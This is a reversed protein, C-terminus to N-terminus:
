GGPGIWGNGGNNWTTTWSGTQYKLVAASLNSSGDGIALLECPGSADVNAGLYTDKPFPSLYWDGIYNNQNNNWLLDWNTGNYKLLMARSGLLNKSICLLEDKVGDGDFDGAVYTDNASMLWGGIYGNDSNWWLTSWTASLDDYKLLRSSRYPLFRNKGTALVEEGSSADDFNGITYKDSDNMSWAGIANSSANDWDINWYPTGSIAYTHESFVAAHGSVFNPKNICILKSYNGSKRPLYIDTASIPWDPYYFGGVDHAWDTLWYPPRLARCKSSSFCLLNMGRSFDGSVFKDGASLQWGTYDAIWGNGNNNWKGNWPQAIVRDSGLLVSLLLISVAMVNKGSMITEERSPTTFSYHCNCSLNENSM